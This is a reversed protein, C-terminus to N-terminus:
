TGTGVGGQQNQTATGLDADTLMTATATDGSTTAVVRVTHGTAVDSIRSQGADVSTASTLVYTRTYGDESKVSISDASVASVTGTQSEQTVYGGNGDSVVATGHLSAAMGGGRGTMGQGPGGQGQGGQGQGGQGAGGQGTMGQGGGGGPGAATSATVTTADGSSVVGATIAATAAVAAVFAGAVAIKARHRGGPATGKAPEAAPPKWEPTMDITRPQVPYADLVAPDTAHSRENITM